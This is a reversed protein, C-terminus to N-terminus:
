ICRTIELFVVNLDKFDKSFLVYDEISLSQNILKPNDRVNCGGCLM